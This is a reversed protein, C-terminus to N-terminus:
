ASRGEAPGTDSTWKGFTGPRVITPEDDTASNRPSNALAHHVARAIPACATDPLPSADRLYHDIRKREGFFIPNALAPDNALEAVARSIEARLRPRRPARNIVVIMREADVGLGRLDHITRVLSRRRQNQACCFPRRSM